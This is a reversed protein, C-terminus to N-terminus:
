TGPLLFALPPSIQQARRRDEILLMRALDATDGLVNAGAAALELPLDMYSCDMALRGIGQLCSESPLTRNVFYRSSMLDGLFNLCIIREEDISGLKYFRAVWLDAVLREKVRWSNFPRDDSRTESGVVLNSRVVSYKRILTVTFPSFHNIAVLAAQHLCHALGITASAIIAARFRIRAAFMSAIIGMSLAPSAILKVILKLLQLRQPGLVLKGAVPAAVAATVLSKTVKPM